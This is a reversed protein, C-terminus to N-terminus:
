RILEGAQYSPLMAVGAGALTVRMLTSAENATINGHVPVSVHEGNEEFHWLSKGFYSHTLCNHRALDEVKQPAPHERLYAPTACVVSRCVTLRRAILNPDLDNSTRIALDIREDVLNVTRDLMQLDVTVLPYLKVYEAIAAGLQAQGFSTSVSLRLLGRPADDPESVAAQMDGCLDLLQRCRPLTEGGAATLSLKRTTRHLLRAGVWDELEALYRSVVPRSLDLHDAAASQSGLDVVTVFVRMAQLRDM